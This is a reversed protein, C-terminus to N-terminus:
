KYIYIYIRTNEHRTQKKRNTEEFLTVNRNETTCTRRECGFQSPSGKQYAIGLDKMLEGMTGRVNEHVDGHPQAPRYMTHSPEAAPWTRRKKCICACEVSNTDSGEISIHM